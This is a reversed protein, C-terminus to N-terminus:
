PPPLPPPLTPYANDQLRLRTMLRINLNSGQHHAPSSLLDSRAINVGKEAFARAQALMNWTELRRAVEFYSEAREPGVDILATKLAAVADETRGQRARVEAIKEM